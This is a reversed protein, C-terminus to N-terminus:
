SSVVSIVRAIQLLKKVLVKRLMVLRGTFPTTANAIDDPNVWSSVSIGDFFAYLQTDPELGKAVFKVLKTRIYPVYPKSVVRQGKDASSAM